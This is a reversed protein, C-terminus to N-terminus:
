DEGVDAIRFEEYFKYMLWGGLIGFSSGSVIGASIFDAFFFCAAYDYWKCQTSYM